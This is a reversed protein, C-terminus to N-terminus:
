YQISKYLSDHLLYPFNNDRTLKVMLYYVFLGFVIQMTLTILNNFHLSNMGYCVLFMVASNLLPRALDQIREKLRYHFIRKSILFISFTGFIETLLYGVAIYMVGYHVSVLLVLINIVLFFLEYYLGIGSRGLAYYVQKDVSSICGCMRLVCFLMLYPICPAWKETLLLLVLPRAAAAVWLLVPFMIFASTSISRRAMQKLTAINDQSRSLVPLIVSQITGIVISAIFPLETGTYYPIGM